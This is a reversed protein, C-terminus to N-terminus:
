KKEIKKGRERVSFVCRGESRFFFAHSDFIRGFCKGLFIVAMIIPM